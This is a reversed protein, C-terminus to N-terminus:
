TQIGVFAVSPPHVHCAVGCLRLHCCACCLIIEELHTHTHRPDPHKNPDHWHKIWESDLFFDVEWNVKWKTFSSRRKNEDGKDNAELHCSHPWIRGSGSVVKGSAASRNFTPTDKDRQNSRNQTYLNNKEMCGNLLGLHKWMTRLWTPKPLAAGFCSGKDM